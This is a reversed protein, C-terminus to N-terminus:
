WPAKMPKTDTAFIEDPSPLAKGNSMKRDGLTVKAERGQGPNNDILYGQSIAAHINRGVVSRDTNMYEALRSHSIGDITDRNTGVEQVALVVGRIGDKVSHELGESLPNNLLNYVTEYDYRESIVLKNGDGDRKDFHVLACAKILALIKPFDRQVKVNNTPILDAIREAYPISVEMKQDSIYNHLKHWPTLDIPVKVKSLGLAQNKLAQRIKDPNEEVNLTLMRSQDEHHIHNATTAMMFSIPGEVTPLKEGKMGNATKQVTLYDLKGESMLQRLFARGDGSAMGAAEGLYLVRHKLSIDSLYPLAKESMGSINEISEPPIFQLGSEIAYTKGSGSAGMVVLSVPDQFIRTTASLFVIKPIDTKGAFGQKRLNDELVDLIDYKSFINKFSNM